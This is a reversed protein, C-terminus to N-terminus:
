QDNGAGSPQAGPRSANTEETNNEAGVGGQPNGNPDIVQLNEVFGFVQRIEGFTASTIVLEAVQPLPFESDEPWVEGTNEEVSQLSIRLEEINTLLTQEVVESDEARDLVLWFYRKLEGDETLNYAVRQISSRSLGLPNNWGTRSLEVIFDGSNVLLAPLPEGFNDRVPRNTIQNFDRQIVTLAKSFSAIDQMASQTREHATVISRLLQSAGLGILAFISMAVMIELLTFGGAHRM